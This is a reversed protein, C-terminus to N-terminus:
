ACAQVASPACRGQVWRLPRVGYEDSYGTAIIHELLRPSIDLSMGRAEVRAVTEELMLRAIEGVQPRGLKQFVVQPHLSPPPTSGLQGSTDSYGHASCQM